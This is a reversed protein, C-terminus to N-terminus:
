TKRILHISIVMQNKRAAPTVKIRCPDAWEGKINDIVSEALLQRERMSFREGTMKMLVGLYDDYIGGVREYWDDYLVRAPYAAADWISPNEIELNIQQLPKCEYRKIAAPDCDFLIYECAFLRRATAAAERERLAELYRCVALLNSVIREASLACMANIHHEGYFSRALNAQDEM